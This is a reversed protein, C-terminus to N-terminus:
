VIAVEGSSPQSRKACGPAAPGTANVAAPPEEGAAFYRLALEDHIATFRLQLEDLYRHLRDGVIAGVNADMVTRRADALAQRPVEELALAYLSQELQMLCHSVARPFHRDKLLFHLVDVGNIRVPATRRYMQWAALSDLVGKWQIDEFPQLEAVGTNLMSEARVNIVRSTMDARELNFGIRAFEYIEDHSMTTALKGGILHCMDIVQRLFGYRRRGLLIALQNQEVYTHLNNLVEWVPKPFLARAARFNERASSVCNLMASPNKERDLALYRIVNRESAADYHRHFSEAGGSINVLPVWGPNCHPPIDLLLGDNVLIMRAISESRELYRAFWYVSEALSSLLM